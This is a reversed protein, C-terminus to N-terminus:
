NTLPKKKTRFVTSTLQVMMTVVGSHSSLATDPQTKRSKTDAITTGILAHGRFASKTHMGQIVLLDLVSKIKDVRM